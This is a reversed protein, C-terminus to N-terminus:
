GPGFSALHVKWFTEVRIGQWFNITKLIKAHYTSNNNLIEGKYKLITM